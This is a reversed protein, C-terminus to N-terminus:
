MSVLYWYGLQKKDFSTLIPFKAYTLITSRLRDNSHVFWKNSFCGDNDYFKSDPRPQLAKHVKLAGCTLFYKASYYRRATEKSAASSQVQKYWEEDNQWLSLSPLKEPGIHSGM